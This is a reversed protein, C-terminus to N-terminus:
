LEGQRGRHDRPLTSTVLDLTRSLDIPKKLVYSDQACTRLSSSWAPPVSDSIEHENFFRLDSFIPRQAFNLRSIWTRFIGLNSTACYTRLLDCHMPRCLGGWWYLVIICYLEGEFLTCYSLKRVNLTRRGREQEQKVLWTVRWVNQGDQDQVIIHIIESYTKLLVWSERSDNISSSSM